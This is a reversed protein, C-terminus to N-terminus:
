GQGARRLVFPYTVKVDVGGQPLPFQWTKLRMLICDEIAKANMTSNDVSAMKVAGNGGIVFAIAVRGNLNPDGQLGQEYCFRVQGLNRNIVAAIQDRDLGSAVSAEQTLAISSTGASGILSLKGYGAHGGGKGKTGYGGAGQINGGVGVPAAVVGKGYLSTQVGGSGQTGGLGPGASTNVAGLDVGGKQKGKSLSGLVALAGMRKLTTTTKTVTKPPTVEQKKEAVTKMEVKPKPPINKIIKVVEQKLNQEMKDTMTPLSHIYTMFLTALILVAALISYWRRESENERVKDKLTEGVEEVLKLHGLKGVLFPAKELGQKSVQGIREFPIKNKSLHDTTRVVELRRTDGRRIVEGTDGKWNFARLVTGEHDELVLQKDM